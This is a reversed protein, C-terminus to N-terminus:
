FTINKLHLWKQVVAESPYEGGAGGSAWIWNTQRHHSKDRDFPACETDLVNIHQVSGRQQVDLRENWFEIRRANIADSPERFFYLTDLACSSIVPEFLVSQAHESIAIVKETEPTSVATHTGGNTPITIEKKVEM